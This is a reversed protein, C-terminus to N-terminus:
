ASRRREPSWHDSESLSARRKDADIKARARRQVSTPEATLAKVVDDYGAEKAVQVPTLGANNKTDRAGGYNLLTVVVDVHGHAAADHLPTDGNFDQTEASIACASCLYAVMDKHGWFSAFHLANRNSSKDVANAAVSGEPVVTMVPAQGKNKLTAEQDIKIPVVKGSEVLARLPAVNGHMALHRFQRALAEVAPMDTAPAEPQVHDACGLAMLKAYAAAFETRFVNEDNAYRDVHVRFGDDALLAVDTPLMMFENHVGGEFQTPGDWKRKNWTFYVLNRFYENDFHLPKSTWQGDFGSRVRHASGLTHGGSLAVIEQDNFGMRGFVERLHAAGQLADPLRGNEPAKEGDKADKRGLCVPVEPGGVFEIAMASALVYLDAYSVEPHRRKVPELLDRIIHLGANAGDDKEPAFRITAGDTGGTKSEKDYTGAMHWAMRMAIPCANVKMNILAARVESRLADVNLATADPGAAKAPAGAATGVTHFMTSMSYDERAALEEIKISFSFFSQRTSWMSESGGFLYFKM